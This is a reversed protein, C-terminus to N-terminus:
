WSIAAIAAIAADPGVKLHPLGAIIDITDSQLTHEIWDYDLPFSDDLRLVRCQTLARLCDQLIHLNRKTAGVGGLENLPFCNEM